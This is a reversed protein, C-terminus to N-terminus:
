LDDSGEDLSNMRGFQSSYLTRVSPAIYTLRRQAQADQSDLQRALMWASSNFYDRRLAHLFVPPHGIEMRAESKPVLDTTM